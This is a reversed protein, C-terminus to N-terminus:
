MNLAAFDYLFTSQIRRKQINNNVNTGKIVCTANQWTGDAQCSISENSPDFGLDCTVSAKSLYISKGSIDLKISGNRIQYLDGCDEFSFSFLSV